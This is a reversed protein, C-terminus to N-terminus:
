TTPFPPLPRGARAAQISLRQYEARLREGEDFLDNAETSGVVARGLHVVVEQWDRVIAEGEARYPM